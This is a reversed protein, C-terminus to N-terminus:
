FGTAGHKIAFVKLPSVAISGGALGYSLGVKLVTALSADYGGFGVNSMKAAVDGGLSSFTAMGYCSGPSGLAFVATFPIIGTLSQNNNITFSANSSTGSILLRLIGAQAADVTHIAGAIYIRCPNTLSGAGWVISGVDDLTATTRYAFSGTISRSVGAAFRNAESAFAIDGGVKPFVGEGAM